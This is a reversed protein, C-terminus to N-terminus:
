WVTKVNTHDTKDLDMEAGCGHCFKQLDKGPMWHESQYDDWLPSQFIDNTYVRECEAGCRTCVYRVRVYSSIQSRCVQRTWHATRRVDEPNLFHECAEEPSKERDAVYGTVDVSACAQYHYCNACNM